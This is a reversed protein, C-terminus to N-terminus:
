SSIVTAATASLSTGRPSCTFGTAARGFKSPVAIDVAIDIDIDASSTCVDMDSLSLSTGSTGAASDARRGAATDRHTDSDTLSHARLLMHLEGIHLVPTGSRSVSKREGHDMTWPRRGGGERDTRVRTESDFGGDSIVIPDVPWRAPLARTSARCLLYRYSVTNRTCQSERLECAAAM